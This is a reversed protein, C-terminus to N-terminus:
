LATPLRLGAAHCKAASSRNAQIQLLLQQSRSKRLRFLQVLLLLRNRFIRM